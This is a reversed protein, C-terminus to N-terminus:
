TGPREPLDFRVSVATGMPPYKVVLRYGVFDAPDWGVRRYAMDVLEAYRPYIPTVTIPPSGPLQRVSEDIPLVCQSQTAGGLAQGGLPDGYVFAEPHFGPALDRHVLVDLLQHEIPVSITATFEGTREDQTRYRPVDAMTVEGFFCDFAATNGVPGPPLMYYLGNRTQKREFDPRQDTTFAQLIPLGHEVDEPVLPSGRPVSPEGEGMWNRNVSLPWSMEARLRRFGVFGRLFASDLVAPNEANPALIALTVKAKAQVGWVGSNGRFAIKRSVELREQGSQNLGDLVLELTSRDGVHVEVVRGIEDYARRVRERVGDNAGAKDMAKLLIKIANAGPLHHLAEGTNDTGIVRALKWTLNKDLGLTRSVEQPADVSVGVGAYLEMLASRFEGISSECEPVFGVSQM